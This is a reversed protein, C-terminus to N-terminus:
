LGLFEKAKIVAPPLGTDPEGEYWATNVQKSRKMQDFTRLLNRVITILEARLQTETISALRSDLQELRKMNDELSSICPAIIRVSKSEAYDRITILTGSIDGILEPVFDELSLDM